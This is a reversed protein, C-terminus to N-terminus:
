LANVKKEIESKKKEYADLIEKSAIGKCRNRVETLSQEIQGLAMKYYSMQVQEGLSEMFPQDANNHTESITDWFTNEAKKCIKLTDVDAYVTTTFALTVLVTLLTKSLKM